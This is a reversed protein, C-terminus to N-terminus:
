LHLPAAIIRATHKGSDLACVRRANRADRLRAKLYSADVITMATASSSIGM